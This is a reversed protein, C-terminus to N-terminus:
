ESQMESVDKQLKEIDGAYKKKTKSMESHFSEHLEKRSDQINQRTKRVLERFAAEIEDAFSGEDESSSEEWESSFQGNQSPEVSDVAQSDDEISEVFQGHEM